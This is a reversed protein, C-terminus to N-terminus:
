GSNNRPNGQPLGRWPKPRTEKKGGDDDYKEADYDCISM